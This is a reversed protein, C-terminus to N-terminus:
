IVKYVRITEGSRMPVRKLWAPPRNSALMAMLGKPNAKVYSKLENDGLCFPVYRAGTALIITRAKDPDAAFAEVVARIGAQNRHHGTGVVSHRTYVLLHSGIDIPAFLIAPPLADLGRTGAYTSCALRPAPEGPKTNGAESPVLVANAAGVAGIPTVVISAVALPVRLFARPLRMVARFLMVFLWAAGPLALAHAVGMARIVTLSVMLAGLQLLILTLWPERREPTLVFAALAGGLGVLSPILVLLAVDLPQTWVPMGEGISRYWDRYVVPDMWAFPGAACQPSHFLFTAGGALAAAVLRPMPPILRGALIYVGTSVGMPLLYAPSMADCWLAQARAWGLTALMLAGAGGTLGILYDSLRGGDDRGRLLDLALVAAMTVALPLGELAITLSMAMVLGALMAEARRGARAGLILVAAIVDLLIQWGHHDIRMPLFQLMVGMAMALMIAAIVSLRADGTARRSLMDVALFLGLLTLLPVAVCALREALGPEMVLGFFLIFAGIPVDVLRSWHMPVGASPHIRYQTVDFWGQGALWDRVQVLRLADDPDRFKDHAIIDRALWVLIAATVFWIAVVILRVRGTLLIGM